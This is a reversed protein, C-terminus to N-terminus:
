DARRAGPLAAQWEALDAPKIRYFVRSVTGVNLAPLTGSDIAARIRWPSLGSARAADPITLLSETTM